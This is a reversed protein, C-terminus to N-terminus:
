RRRRVKRAVDTVQSDAVDHELGFAHLAANRRAQAHESLGHDTKEWYSPRTVLQFLAKWAAFSILLWYIPTFIASPCVRVLGRRLPAIAALTLFAFNGFALAGVSLSKALPFLEGLPDYGGLHEALLVIWIVPNILAAFVAGGIFLDLSLRTRLDLARGRKRNVLWTQMFGKMWRSRQRTWNALHCNAEEFTTSDLVTTRYGRRALRLGLDADETVNYPDWAGVEVLVHTRFLNSTGGLPVPAGLRDLAPLFHDFWLCYELTFQRTLWNEEPNYFNLRAQICALREDAGAFIEAARRLQDPQPEDEADYIVTIDGRACALGYNCAKPKTQPHSPPVVIIDFMDDLGLREAEARTECDTEELLLKVDIKDHPYDLKGIASVLGPLAHAERFLPALITVVPLDADELSKHSAGDTRHRALIVLCIRVLAVAIFYVTITLIFAAIMADPFAAILVLACCAFLGAAVPSRRASLFRASEHPQTDALATTADYNLEESFRGRLLAAFKQRGVFIDHRSHIACTTLFVVRGNRIQWPAYGQRFYKRLHEYRCVRRRAANSLSSNTGGADAM